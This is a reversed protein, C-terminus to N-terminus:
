HLLMWKFQELVFRWYGEVHKNWKSKLKKQKTPNVGGEYMYEDEWM